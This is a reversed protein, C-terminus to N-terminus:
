QSTQSDLESLKFTEDKSPHIPSDEFHSSGRVMQSDVSIEVSRSVATVDTAATSATTHAKEGESLATRDAKEAGTSDPAKQDFVRNIRVVCRVLGHQGCREMSSIDCEM